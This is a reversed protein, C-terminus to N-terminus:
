GVDHKGAEAAYEELWQQSVRGCPKEPHAQNLRGAMAATTEWWRLFWAVIGSGERRITEPLM